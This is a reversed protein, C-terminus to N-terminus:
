IGGWNDRYAATGRAREGSGVRAARPRGSNFPPDVYVLDFHAHPLSPLVELCDGFYLNGRPFRVSTAKMSRRARREPFQGRERKRVSGGRRNECASGRRARGSGYGGSVM